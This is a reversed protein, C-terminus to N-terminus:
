FQKDHHGRKGVTFYALLVTLATSTACIPIGMVLLGLWSAVAPEIQTLDMGSLVGMTIVALHLAVSWVAVAVAYKKMSFANINAFFAGVAILEIFGLIALIVNEESCIDPTLRYIPYLLATATVGSVILRHSKKAFFGTVRGILKQEKPVAKEAANRIKESIM